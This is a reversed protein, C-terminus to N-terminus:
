CGITSREAPKSFNGSEISFKLIQVKQRGKKKFLQKNRLVSISLGDDFKVPLVICHMDISHYGSVLMKINYAAMFAVLIGWFRGIPTTDFSALWGLFDPKRPILRYIFFVKSDTDFKFNPREDRECSFHANFFDLSKGHDTREESPPTQVNFLVLVTHKKNLYVIL